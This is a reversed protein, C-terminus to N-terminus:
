PCDETVREVPGLEAQSRGRSALDILDQVTQCDRIKDEEVPIEHEDFVVLMNIGATSDWLRFGRLEDSPQITKPDVELIAALAEILEPKTM